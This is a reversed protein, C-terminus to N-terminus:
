LPLPKVKQKCAVEDLATVVVAIAEDKVMANRVEQIKDKWKKGIVCIM